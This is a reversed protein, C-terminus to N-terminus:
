FFQALADRAVGRQARGRAVATKGIGTAEGVLRRSIGMAHTLRLADRVHMRLSPSATFGTRGLKQLRREM